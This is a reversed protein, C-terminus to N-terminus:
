LKIHRKNLGRQAAIRVMRHPDQGLPETARQRKGAHHQVLDGQNWGCSM